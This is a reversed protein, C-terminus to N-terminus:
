LRFARVALPWSVRREVPGGWARALAPLIAEIPDEGHRAVYPRLPSWTGLYGVLHELTWTLEMAFAPAALENFPFEVTRYELEVLRREPEWYPGLRVEALEHVIADIEPTIRALNYCWVALVGGPHVVRRVEAFFRAHDLWHFAQAVTLLDAIGGDLGTAEAAAARYEIRPHAPANALQADSPEIAVVRDFWAAIPVSAQGSGAGIDVAVARAPAVEALWAFLAPPYTPRFRAYDSSKLSFLDKL